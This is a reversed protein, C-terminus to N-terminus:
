KDIFAMSFTIIYMCIYRCICICICICIRLSTKLSSIGTEELGQLCRKGDFTKYYAESAYKLIDLLTLASNQTQRHKRKQWELERKFHSFISVDPSQMKSTTNPLWGCLEVGMDSLTQLFNANLRSTHWDTMWIVRRGDVPAVDPYMEKIWGITAEVINDKTVSGTESYTVFVNQFTIGNFGYPYRVDRELEERFKDTIKCPM